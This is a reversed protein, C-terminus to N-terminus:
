MMSQIIRLLQYTNLIYKEYAFTALRMHHIFNQYTNSFFPILYNEINKVIPSDDNIPTIRTQKIIQVIPIFLDKTSTILRDPDSSSNYTTTYYKIALEPLIDRVYSEITQGNFTTTKIDTILQEIDIGISSGFSDAVQGYVINLVTPTLILNIIYILQDFETKIAPDEEMTGGLNKTDIYLAVLKFYEVLSNFDQRTEYDINNDISKNMFTQICTDLHGFIISPAKELNKNFYNKWIAVHLNNSTGIGSFMHNYYEILDIGRTLTEESNRVSTNYIEIYNEIDDKSYTTSSTLNDLKNEINTKNARLVDLRTNISPDYSTALEKRLGDIEVNIMDLQKQYKTRAKNDIAVTADEARQTADESTIIKVVQNEDIVFMDNPWVSKRKISSSYKMIINDISEKLKYSFGHRYNQVYMDFMHNYIILKIPIGLTINKIINNEFKIDRLRALMLDNFSVAFNEITNYISSGQTFALHEKMKDMAILYPTKGKIDMWSKPNAGRSILLEVLEHNSQRVAIHLPTEGSSNKKNISTNTILNSAIKPNVIYCKPNSNTNLSSFYNIDYLHHILNNSVTEKTSYDINSPNQEIQPLKIDVISPDTASALLNNISTSSDNNTTIKLYNSQNVFKITREVDNVINDFSSENSVIGLIWSSISQKIAYEIVDNLITDSIKALVISTKIDDIETYDTMNGLSHISSYIDSLNEDKLNDPMENNNFTNQIINQIIRQKIISLHTGALAKISEPMGDIWQFVYQGNVNAISAGNFVYTDDSFSIWQGNVFNDSQYIGEVEIEDNNNVGFLINTQYNVGNIFNTQPDDSERELLITNKYYEPVFTALAAYGKETKEEYANYAQIMLREINSDLADSQRYFTVDLISYSQLVSNIADINGIDPFINPINPFKTLNGIFLRESVRNDPNLDQESTMLTYANNMNLYDIVDNHFAIIDSMRTVINTIQFSLYESLEKRLNILEPINDDTNTIYANLNNNQNQLENFFVDTKSLSTISQIFSVILAPLFVQAVSYYEKATIFDIIDNIIKRSRNVETILGESKLLHQKLRVYQNNYFETLGFMTDYYKNNRFFDIFENTLNIEFCNVRSTLINHRNIVNRATFYSNVLEKFNDTNIFEYIEPYKKNTKVTYNRLDLLNNYDSLSTIYNVGPISKYNEYIIKELLEAPMLESNEILKLFNIVLPNSRIWKRQKLDIVPDNNPDGSNFYSADSEQPLLMYHMHADTINHSTFTLYNDRFGNSYNVYIYKDLSHFYDSLINEIVSRVRSALVKYLFIFEPYRVHDIKPSIEEDLYKEWDGLKQDFIPPYRTYSFHNPVVANFPPAAPVNPPLIIQLIFDMLRIMEILTYKDLVYLLVPAAGTNPFPTKPLNTYRFDFRTIVNGAADNPLNIRGLLRSVSDFWSDTNIIKKSSILDNYEQELHKFEPQKLIIDFRLSMQGELENNLPVTPDLYRNLEEDSDTFYPRLYNFPEILNKNINNNINNNISYNQFIMDRMMRDFINDFDEFFNNGPGIAVVFASQLTPQFIIGPARTEWGNYPAPNLQDRYTNTLIQNFIQQNLLKCNRIIKKALIRGFYERHYAVTLLSFIKEYSVLSGYVDNENCGTCFTNKDIYEDLKKVVDLSTTSFSFKNDINILNRESVELQKGTDRIVDEINLRMIRERDTPPQISTPDITGDPAVTGIKQPGWGGNNPSFNMPTVLGSVDRIINSYTRDILQEIKKQQEGMSNVSISQTGTLSSPYATDTATDVFIAALEEEIERRTDTNVYMKPFKEITNIIHIVDNSIDSTDNIYNMVKRNIDELVKNLIQKDVTQEPVLNKIKTAKPCTVSKGTIAYHLPTNDFSDSRDVNVRNKILFDVIEPAQISAALHIPWTNSADSTDLPAGMEYLYRILELKKGNDAIKNDLRLVAHVPSEGGEAKAKDSREFLNYSNHYKMSFDRIKDIDGTRIAMFFQEIINAPVTKEPNNILIRQQYRSM